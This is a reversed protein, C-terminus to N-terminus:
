VFGGVEGFAKVKTGIAAFYGLFIEGGEGSSFFKEKVSVASPSKL